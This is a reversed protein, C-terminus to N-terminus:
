AAMDRALLTRTAAEVDDQRMLSEGVLFCEAGVLAMRALDAPAYLGSESIVTRGDPVNPALAETMAMDVELTKLNRNNIGILETDLMLARELEAANHVEALVDM